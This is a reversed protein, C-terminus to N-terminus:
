GSAHITVVTLTQEATWAIINAVIANTGPSTAIDCDYCISHDANTFRAWNANGSVYVWGGLLNLTIESPSVLNAVPAAPTDLTLTALLLVSPTDATSLPRPGQYFQVDGGDLEGNILSQIVADASGTTGDGSGGGSRRGRSGALPGVTLFTVV